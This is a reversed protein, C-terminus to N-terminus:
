VVFLWDFVSRAEAPRGLTQLAEGRLSHTQLRSWDHLYADTALANETLSLIATWDPAPLNRRAQALHFLLDSNVTGANDLGREFAEAAAAWEVRYLANTNVVNTWALWGNGQFSTVVAEQGMATTALLGAAATLRAFTKM